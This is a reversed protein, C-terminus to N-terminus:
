GASRWVQSNAEVDDFVFSKPLEGGCVAGIEDAEEAAEFGHAGAERGAVEDKAEDDGV